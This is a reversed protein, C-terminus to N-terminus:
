PFDIVLDDGGSQPLFTNVGLTHERYIKNMVARQM